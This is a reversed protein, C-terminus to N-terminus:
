SLVQGHTVPGPGTGSRSLSCILFCSCGKSGGVALAILGIPRKPDNAVPAFWCCTSGM